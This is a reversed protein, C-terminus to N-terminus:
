KKLKVDTLPFLYTCVKYVETASEDHMLDEIEDQAKRLVEKARDLLKPNAPFTYASFDRLEVPVNKIKIKAMEMDNLHSEQLSLDLVDDSTQIPVNSREFKGTESITILKLHQLRLVAKRAEVEPIELRTAIWSIDPRFDKVRLLSLIAFHIGDAIFAYQNPDLRIKSKVVPTKTKTTMRSPFKKLLDTRETPDLKLNDAIKEAIKRSVRREGKLIEATAGPSLGIKTAFARMSYNPNKAKLENLKNTLFIRVQDQENM